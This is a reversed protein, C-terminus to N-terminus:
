GVRHPPRGAAGAPRQIRVDKATFVFQDSLFRAAGEFGAVVKDAWLLYKYLSLELMAEKKCSIPRM